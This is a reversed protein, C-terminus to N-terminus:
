LNKSNCSDLNVFQSFNKFYKSRNGDCLINGHHANFLFIVTQQDLASERIIEGICGFHKTTCHLTRWQNWLSNDLYVRVTFLNNKSRKRYIIQECNLFIIKM